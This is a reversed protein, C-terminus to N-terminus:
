NTLHKLLLLMGSIAAVLLSVFIMRNFIRNIDKQTKDFSENSEKRFQEIMEYRTAM